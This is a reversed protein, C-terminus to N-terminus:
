NETKCKWFVRSTSLPYCENALSSFIELRSWAGVDTMVMEFLFIQSISVLIVKRCRSIRVRLYQANCLLNVYKVQKGTIKGTVPKTELESVIKMANSIPHCIKIRIYIYVM